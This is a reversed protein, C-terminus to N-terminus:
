DEVRPLNVTSGEVKDLLKSGHAPRVNPLHIVALLAGLGIQRLGTGILHAVAIYPNHTWNSLGNQGLGAQAPLTSPRNGGVGGVGGVGGPRSAGGVGGVGGPRGVGGSITNRNFSNFHNIYVGGGGWGCGWGWGGSWWAGM